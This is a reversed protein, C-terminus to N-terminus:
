AAVTTAAIAVVVATVNDHAGRRLALDILSQVTDQCGGCSLLISIELEDLMKYLGDSCLLLVDGAQLPFDVVDISLEERQGIARTILNSQPHLQADQPRLLGKDLLEQVYSHDRTLQTIGGERLLYVRSDGVWLCAGRDGQALLVVVTSGVTRQQYLRTSLDRLQSHVQQLGARVQGVFAQWQEPPSLRRLTEIVMRSAVGGSAHGGMGDAVAWLGLEPLALCSDENIRRVKGVHSLVASSWHLRNERSMTPLTAASSIHSVTEHRVIRNAIGARLQM